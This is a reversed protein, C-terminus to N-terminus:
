KCRALRGLSAGRYNWHRTRVFETEIERWHLRSKVYKVDAIPFGTIFSMTPNFINFIDRLINQIGISLPKPIGPAYVPFNTLNSPPHLSSPSFDEKAIYTARGHAAEGILACSRDLIRTVLDCVNGSDRDCSCIYRINRTREAKRYTFIIEARIAKIYVFYLLM